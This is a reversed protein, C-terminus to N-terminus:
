YVYSLWSMLRIWLWGLGNLIWNSEQTYVQVDAQGGAFRLGRASDDDFQIIVPFRQADRLWGSDGKITAAEGAASEGSSQQVAYGRSFVRGKYVEGPAMDLAIEVPDGIQINGISNERFNAQIWVDSFSVFTMLPTGANAYYGEDIKLNTIGGDTPARIETDTLDIRAQELAALADRIKPNEEGKIGLESKAKELEAEASKVQARAKARQARARDAEAKSIAGKKEVAEIRAVQVEIEASNAKAEVLEAQANTVAATGAGIDQGALELAAEARQVALEYEDPDIKVLLDGAKVFQDQVVNVKVVKGSVKPTIPVIWAQVRAQDTWPAFRDAFVYWIFLVLVVVSVIWTFRRVPDSTKTPEPQASSSQEALQADGAQKTADESDPKEGTGM